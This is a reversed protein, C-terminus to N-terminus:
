VHPTAMSTGSIRIHNSDLCTPSGAFATGWRAACILVGPASLDPKGINEGNWVLPGRSSFSAIASSCNSQSGVQGAKCAAAVTIATRSTGPSGITSSGPGSNGAAVVVTVGVATDNDVALSASDDPNGVGGLSLNVVDVHDSSDGDRNPDAAYDLAAIIDSTLCSGGSGCVKYALIRADPAVGKLLGNGAATAAVHTGHGNDDMPDSDGNVFDYGGVVKCVSGFCGGLDPHTYDVGTDIVAISEGMGTIPNNNGDLLSWVDRARIEDVSTDLVVHYTEDLEIKKVYPDNKLAEFESKNINAVVANILLLDKKIGNSTKDKIQNKIKNFENLKEKKNNKEYFRPFSTKFQIIVQVPDSSKDFHKLLKKDVNDSYVSENIDSNSSYIKIKDGSSVYTTVGVKNQIFNGNPLSMEGGDSTIVKSVAKDSGTVSVAVEGGKLVQMGNAKAVTEISAIADTSKHLSPLIAAFVFGAGVTLFKPSFMKRNM